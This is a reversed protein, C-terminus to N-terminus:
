IILFKVNPLYVNELSQLKRNIRKRLYSVDEFLWPLMAKGVYLLRTKRMSMIRISWQVLLMTVNLEVQWNSQFILTM